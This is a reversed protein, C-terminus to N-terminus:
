SKKTEEITSVSTFVSPPVPSAAGADIIGAPVLITGVAGGGIVM